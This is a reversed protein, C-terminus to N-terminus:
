GGSSRRRPDLRLAPVIRRGKPFNQGQHLRVVFILRSGAAVDESGRGTGGARLRVMSRRHFQDAAAAHAGHVARRRASPCNSCVTASLIRDACRALERLEQAAKLRLPLDQRRQAVRMDRAQHVAPYGRGAVREENGSSISPRSMSRKRRRAAAQRDGGPQFEQQLDAVGDVVGVPLRITCRSRLGALIRTSASPDTFSSSKPVAPRKSASRSVVRIRARM